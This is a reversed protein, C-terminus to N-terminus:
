VLHLNQLIFEPIGNLYARKQVLDAPNIKSKMLKGHITQTINMNLHVYM